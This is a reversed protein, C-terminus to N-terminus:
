DATLLRKVDFLFACVKTYSQLLKRVYEYSDYMRLRAPLEKLETLMAELQQRLKRPQVSLWPKERIDDIQSWIKSLSAWVGRLDQLEELAVTM